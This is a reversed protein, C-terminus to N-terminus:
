RCCVAELDCHEHDVSVLQVVGHSLQKFLGSITLPNNKITSVAERAKMERYLDGHVDLLATLYLAHDLNIDMHALESYRLKLASQLAEKAPSTISTEDFDVIRWHNNLILSIATDDLQQCGNIYIRKLATNKELAEFLRRMNLVEINGILLSLSTLIQNNELAEVIPQINIAEGPSQNSRIDKNIGVTLNTMSKHTALIEGFFSVDEQTGCYIWLKKLHNHLLAEKFAANNAFCLDKSTLILEELSANDTLFEAIKTLFFEPKVYNLASFFIDLSRIASQKLAKTLLCMSESTAHAYFRLHSLGSNKNLGEAIEKLTDFSEDSEVGGLNICFIDFEQLTQNAKLVPGILANFQATSLFTGAFKFSILTRNASLATALAITGNYDVKNYNLNLHTLYQNENLAVAIAQAGTYAIKNSSLNLEKLAQNQSLAKALPVIENDGLNCNCLVLTKLTNNVALDDALAQMNNNKLNVGLQFYILTQNDRLVNKFNVTCNGDKKKCILCFETLTQNSKLADLIGQLEPKFSDDLHLTFKNLRQNTTLMQALLILGEASIKCDYLGISTISLNSDLMKILLKISTLELTMYSIYLSKITTNSELVKLFGHIENIQLFNANLELDAKGLKDIETKKFLTLM